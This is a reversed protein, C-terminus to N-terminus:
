EKNRFHKEMHTYESSCMENASHCSSGVTQSLSHTHKAAVKFRARKFHAYLINVVPFFHYLTATGSIPTLILRHWICKHFLIACTFSIAYKNYVSFCLIHTRRTLPRRVYAFFTIYIFWSHILTCRSITKLLNQHKFSEHTKEVVILHANTIHQMEIDLQNEVVTSKEGPM